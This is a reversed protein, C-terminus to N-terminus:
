VVILPMTICVRYAVRNSVRRSCTINEEQKKKKKKEKQKQKKKGETEAEKKFLYYSEPM